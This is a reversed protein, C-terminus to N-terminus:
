SMHSSNNQSEIAESESFVCLIKRLFYVPLIVTEYNKPIKHSKKMLFYFRPRKGSSLEYKEKPEADSESIKGLCLFMKRIFSMKQSKSLWCIASFPRSDEEVLFM